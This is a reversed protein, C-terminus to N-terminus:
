GVLLCRSGRHTENNLSSFCTVLNISLVLTFCLSFSKWISFFTVTTSFEESLHKLDAVCSIVLGDWHLSLSLFIQCYHWRVDCVSHFSRDTDIRKSDVLTLIHIPMCPLRIAKVSFSSVSSCLVCIQPHPLVVAYMYILAYLCNKIYRCFKGM